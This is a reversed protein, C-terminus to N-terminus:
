DKSVILTPHWNLGRYFVYIDDNVQFPYPYTVNEGFRYDDGWSSIDEPNTSIFRHAPATTHKSFYVVLRGDKRIFIAPDDHDDEELKPYLLHETYVGTKHNYAGIRIDGVRNVWAIYTQERAGKYYIARPDNFWCWAGDINLTDIKPLNFFNTPFSAVVPVTVVDAGQTITINGSVNTSDASSIIVSGGTPSLSTESLQIGEPAGIEIPDSSGNPYISITQEARYYNLSISSTTCELKNAQETVSLEGIACLAALNNAKFTLYYTGATSAYFDMDGKQLLQKTSSCAFDKSAILGGGSKYTGVGVTLTPTSANNWWEYIFSFQYRKGAKLVVPYSFVSELSTSGSGDWRIMLLRGTYDSGNLTHGSTVDNWRVGGSSNAYNFTGVTVDWGYNNPYSTTTNVDGNGDWEEVLNTQSFAPLTMCIIFSLLLLKHNM